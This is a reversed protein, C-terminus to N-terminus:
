LRKSQATFLYLITYASTYGNWYRAICPVCLDPANAHLQLVRVPAPDPLHHPHHLRHPKRRNSSTKETCTSCKTAFMKLCCCSVDDGTLSMFSRKLALRGHDRRHRWACTRRVVQMQCVAVQWALRHRWVQGAEFRPVHAISRHHGTGVSSVPENSPQAFSSVFMKCDISLM